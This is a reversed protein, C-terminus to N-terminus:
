KQSIINSSSEKKKIERSFRHLNYFDFQKHMCQIGERIFTGAVSTLVNEIQNLTLHSRQTYINNYIALALVAIFLTYIFEDNSVSNVRECSEIHVSFFYKPWYIGNALTLFM